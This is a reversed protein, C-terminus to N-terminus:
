KWFEWWSIRRDSIVRAPGEKSAEKIQDKTMICSAMPLKVDCSTDNFEQIGGPDWEVLVEDGRIERITYERRITREWTRTYGVQMPSWVNYQEACDIYIKDGVKM